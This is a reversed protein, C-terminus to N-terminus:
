PPEGREVTNVPFKYRGNADTRPWTLTRDLPFAAQEATLQQSSSAGATM